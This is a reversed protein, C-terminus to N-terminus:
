YMTACVNEFNQYYLDSVRIWFCVMNPSNLEIPNLQAQFQLLLAWRDDNEEGLLAQRNDIETILSQNFGKFRYPWGGMQIIKDGGTLYPAKRIYDIINPNVKGTHSIYLNNKEYFEKDPLTVTENQVLGRVPFISDIELGEPISSLHLKSCENPVFVIKCCNPVMVGPIPAKRFLEESFFIYFLGHRIFSLDPGFRASIVRTGIFQGIFPLPKNETKPWEFDEPIWPLGGTKSFQYRRMNEEMSKIDLQGGRDILFCTCRTNRLDRLILDIPSKPYNM